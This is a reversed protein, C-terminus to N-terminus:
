AADRAAGAETPSIMAAQRAARDAALTADLSAWARAAALAYIGNGSLRLRDVRRAADDSARRLFSQALRSLIAPRLAREADTEDVGAPVGKSGCEVVETTVERLLEVVELRRDDVPLDFGDRPVLGLQDRGTHRAQPVLQLRTSPQM